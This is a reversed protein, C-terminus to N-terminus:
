DEAGTGSYYSIKKARPLHNRISKLANPPRLNILNLNFCFIVDHCLMIILQKMIGNVNFLYTM